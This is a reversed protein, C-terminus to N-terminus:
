LHILCEQLASLYENFVVAVIFVIMYMYIKNINKLICNDIINETSLKM